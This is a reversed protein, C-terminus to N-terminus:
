GLSGAFTALPIFEADPPAEQPSFHAGGIEGVAGSASTELLRVQALTGILHSGGTFEVRIYNSTYGGLLAGRSPTSETQVAVAEHGANGSAGSESEDNKAAGEKGEVLVELTRGIYRQIFRQQTERCAAALEKSRAEKEADPVQDRYEAAPTNPRPSYRFLHARAYGVTQVVNLTNEFAARDEGPFGVMIDSTIALDPIRRYAERCRDLYFDRDYPRNMRALVGSDGSQLPIHLHRCLKPEIAFAGLLQDTVQTPEISSLRVREVGPVGALKLLCAALDPATRHPVSAHQRLTAMGETVARDVRPLESGLVAVFNDQGYAGVLVGTVVLERYGQAVRLKAEAVLEDLPRSVMYKRTYPISCFACFVNCGDQVKITARTRRTAPPADPPRTQATIQRELHPFANLVQKLTDLKQHNPVILTADEVTEGKIKAMEGYCGTMVVIADPNLRAVKRVLQRSKREASQTVSCTNIVYVDAAENFETIAFGYEEFDDLIRQTEYQNVKCGLTTFAAIPV